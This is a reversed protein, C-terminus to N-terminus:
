ILQSTSLNLFYYSFEPEGVFNAYKGMKGGIRQIKKQGHMVRKSRIQLRNGIIQLSRKSIKKQCCTCTFNLLVYKRKTVRTKQSILIKGTVQLKYRTAM